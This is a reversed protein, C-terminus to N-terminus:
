QEALEDNNFLNRNEHSRKYELGQPTEFDQSHDFCRLVVVIDYGSIKVEGIEDLKKNIRLVCNIKTGTKFVVKEELVQKIFYLDNMAFSISREEFTGIWKRKKNKFVPSLIEITADEIIVPALENTDLVFDHFYKRKVIKENAIPRNSNDLVTAGIQCIRNDKLVNAYFNSKRKAVKAHTNILDAIKVIITDSVQPVKQEKKLKQIELKLKEKELYKLESDDALKGTIVTSIIGLVFGVLHQNKLIILIRDRVGGESIAEIDISYDQLSLLSTLEKILTLLERECENFVFANMVHENDKLYYHIELKEPLTVDNM